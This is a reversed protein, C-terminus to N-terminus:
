EDNTRGNEYRNMTISLSIHDIKENVLFNLGVLFSLPIYFMNVLTSYLKCVQDCAIAIPFTEILPPLPGDTFLARGRTTAM